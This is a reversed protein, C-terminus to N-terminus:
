DITLKKLKMLYADSIYLDGKSDFVLGHPYYIKALSVDGDVDGKGADGLITTVKGDKLYKIKGNFADAIYLGGDKDLLLNSLLKFGVSLAPGNGDSLASTGAITTITNNALMKIKNGINAGHSFDTVYIKSEDASVELGDYLSFQATGVAGDVDGTTFPASVALWTLVGAPTIKGIRDHATVYVNGNPMVKVASPIIGPAFSYFDTVNKNADIKRIYGKVPAGSYDAVYVNGAADSSVIDNQGLRANTGNANIHGITGDGAMTSVDGSPSIKRVRPKNYQANYINDNGDITIGVFEEFKATAVPGDQYGIQGNTVSSLTYAYIYTFAPGNYTKGNIILVLNGSGCKPPVKATIKTETATFVTCSHGNILVQIKSTDTIFGTGTITIISNKAGSATGGPGTVSSIVANAPPPTIDDSSKKCSYFIFAAALLINLHRNLFNKM